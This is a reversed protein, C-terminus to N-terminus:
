GCADAAAICHSQWAWEVIASQARRSGSALQEEVGEGGGSQTRQVTLETLAGEGPPNKRVLIQDWCHFLPM